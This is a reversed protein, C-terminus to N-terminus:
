AEIRRASIEIPPEASLPALATGISSLKEMRKRLTM